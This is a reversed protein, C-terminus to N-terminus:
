WVWRRATIQIYQNELSHTVWRRWCMLFQGIRKLTNNTPLAQESVITSLAMLMTDDVMRGYFLFSALVQQVFKKGNKDLLEAM